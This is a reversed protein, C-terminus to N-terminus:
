LIRKHGKVMQTHPWGNIDIIINFNNCLNTKRLSDDSKLCTAVQFQSAKLENELEKERM